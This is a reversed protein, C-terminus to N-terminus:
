SKTVNFFPINLHKEFFYKNQALNGLLSIDLKKWPQYTIMSQIDVFSPKYTGKTEFTELLYQSTKYRVGGIFSLKNNKSIGEVTLGGGL